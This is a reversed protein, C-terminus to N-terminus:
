DLKWAHPKHEQSILFEVTGDAWEEQYEVGRREMESRYRSAWAKPFSLVQWAPFIATRILSLIDEFREEEESRYYVCNDHDVAFAIGAKVVLRILRNNFKQNAFRFCRDFQLKKM